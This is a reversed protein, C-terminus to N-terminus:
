FNSPPFAHPNPIYLFFFTYVRLLIFYLFHFHYEQFNNNFFLKNNDIVAMMQKVIRM